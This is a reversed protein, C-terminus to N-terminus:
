PFTTSPGDGTCGSLEFSYRSADTVWVHKTMATCHWSWIRRNSPSSYKDATM